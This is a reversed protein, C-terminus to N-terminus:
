RARRWGAKRAEAEACFWREGKSEKIQTRDYWDMGPLHYIREGKSNINGKIVCTGSTSHAPAIQPTRQGRRWLDPRIFQGQWVGMGASQAAREQDVYDNSYKRYAVAWGQAVMWANLNLGGAACTAILRGYRDTDRVRCFVVARGIQDALALASKQGCRWTRDQADLCSQGSEPADVGHLRIRISRIEITDGDIVSARGAVEVVEGATLPASLPLLLFFLLSKLLRTMLGHM